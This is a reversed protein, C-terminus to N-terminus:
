SIANTMFQIGYKKAKEDIIRVVKAKADLMPLDDGPNEFKVKILEGLKLTGAKLFVSMGTASIDLCEATLKTTDTTITCDVPLEVRIFTRRERNNEMKFGRTLNRTTIISFCLWPHLKYVENILAM